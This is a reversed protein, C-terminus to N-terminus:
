NLINKYKQKILYILYEVDTDKRFDIKYVNGKTGSKWTWSYETSVIKPDDM